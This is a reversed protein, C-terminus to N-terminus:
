KRMYHYKLIKITNKLGLFSLLAFGKIRNCVQNDLLVNARNEKVMSWLGYERIDSISIDTCLYSFIIDLVQSSYANKIGYETIDIDTTLQNLAEIADLRKVSFESGTISGTRRYYFYVFEDGYVIKQSKDIVKYITYLDEHLKGVPFRINDFLRKVYLKAPASTSFLNAYLMQGIAEKNNYICIRGNGLKGESNMNKTMRLKGISIDSNNEKVLKYLYAVSYDPIYDDSDVFMIYKGLSIDIGVNRADSLGGNIKHIVKIREDKKKLTDCIEGSKDTSGDNVLIIEINRYLQSMISDVCNNIYHEVNYVPVIISILESDNRM